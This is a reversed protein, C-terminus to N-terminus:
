SLWNGEIRKSNNKVQEHQKTKVVSFVVHQSGQTKLQLATFIKIERKFIVRQQKLQKKIIGALTSSHLKLPTACKM